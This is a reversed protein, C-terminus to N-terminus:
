RRRLWLRMTDTMRSWLGGRPVDVIPFLPVSRISKGGVIIQL